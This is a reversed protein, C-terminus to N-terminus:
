TLLSKARRLSLLLEGAGERHTQEVTEGDRSVLKKTVAVAAKAASQSLGGDRYAKELERDGPLLFENKIATVGAKQNMPFTVLSFEYIVAEKISRVFTKSNIDADITRYGISLGKIAKRKLLATAVQAQPLEGFLTGSLKLGRDDEAMEDWLGIPESSMHQWLIPPMAKRKQWEAISKKFAGPLIIDGGSDVNNFVAGYGTIHCDNPNANPDVAPDAAPDALKWELDGECTLHESDPAVDKQELPLFLRNIRM